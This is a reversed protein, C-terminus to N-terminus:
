FAYLVREPIWHKGDKNYYTVLFEKRKNKRRTKYVRKIENKINRLKSVERLEALYYKRELTTEKELDELTYRHPLASTDVEKVRKIEARQLDYSRLDAEKPLNIFVLTGEPLIKTKIDDKKDEKLESQRRFEARTEVDLFPSNVEAPSKGGLKKLPRGNIQNVVEQCFSPWPKGKSARIVKYLVQKFIRVYGEALFSKHPEKLFFWKINKKKYYTVNGQYEKGMDSAITNIKFLSNEEIFDDIAKRVSEATKNKLPKVYIYNSFQDVMLIAYRFGHIKPLYM